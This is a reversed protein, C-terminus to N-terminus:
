LADLVILHRAIPCRAVEGLQQSQFINHTEQFLRQLLLLRSVSLQRSDGLADVILCLGLHRFRRLVMVRFEADAAM